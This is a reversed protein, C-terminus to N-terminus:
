WRFKNMIFGVLHVLKVFKNLWSVRCTESLEDTWWWCNIWQVSLLPIHWVPKYVATPCSLSPLYIFCFSSLKVCGVLVVIKCLFFFIYKWGPGVRFSDVFRYSMYWQHTYLSQVGSSPSVFQGFCTSNWALVFKHFQHMQNSENCLCETDQQNYEKILCVCSLVESRM